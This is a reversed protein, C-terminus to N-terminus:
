QELFADIKAVANNIGKEWQKEIEPVVKPNDFDYDLRPFDILLFNNPGLVERAYFREKSVSGGQLEDSLIVKLWGLVNWPTKRNLNDTPLGTGISVVRMEDFPIHLHNKLGAITFMSADNAFIGGDAYGNWPNFFTQAAASARAVEWAQWDADDVDQSYFIHPRGLDLCHSCAFTNKLDGFRFDLMKQLSTNLAVDRYKPSLIKHHRWWYGKFIKPASEEWFPVLVDPSQGSAIYLANIAGGSTGGWASFKHLNKLKALILAQGYCFCGGGTLCLINIM